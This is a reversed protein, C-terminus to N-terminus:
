MSQTSLSLRPSSKLTLAPIRIVFDFSTPAWPGAISGATELVRIRIGVM